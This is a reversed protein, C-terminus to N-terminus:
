EEWETIRGMRLGTLADSLEGLGMVVSDIDAIAQELLSQRVPDQYNSWLTFTDLVDITSVLYLRLEIVQRFLEGDVLCRGNRVQNLFEEVERLLEDQHIALEARAM